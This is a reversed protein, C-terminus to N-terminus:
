FTSNFCSPVGIRLIKISLALFSYLVPLIVSRIRKDINFQAYYCLILPATREKIYTKSRRSLNQLFAPFEGTQLIIKFSVSRRRLERPILSYWYFLLEVLIVKSVVLLVEFFNPFTNFLYDVDFGFIKIM